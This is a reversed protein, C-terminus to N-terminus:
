RMNNFDFAIKRIRENISTVIRDHEQSLAGNLKIEALIDTLTAIIQAENAM